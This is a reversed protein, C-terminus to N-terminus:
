LLELGERIHKPPVTPSRPKKAQESAQPLRAGLALREPELPATEAREVVVGILDEADEPHGVPLALPTPDMLGNPDKLISKFLAEIPDESIPMIKHVQAAIIGNRDLLDQAIKIRERKDVSDDNMWEVLKIAAEDATFLIREAARKRVQPARGGHQDCVVSGDEAVRRCREGTEKYHGNCRLIYPPAKEWWTESHTRSKGAM